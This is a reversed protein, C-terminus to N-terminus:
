GELSGAFSPGVFLAFKCPEHKGTQLLGLSCTVCLVGEWELGEAIETGLNLRRTISQFYTIQHQIGKWDHGVAQPM